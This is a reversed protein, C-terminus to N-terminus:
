PIMCCCTLSHCPSESYIRIETRCRVKALSEAYRCYFNFAMIILKVGLSTSVDFCDRIRSDSV